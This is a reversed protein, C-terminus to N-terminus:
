PTGAGPTHGVTRELEARALLYALNAQLLEARAKYNEATAHRVDSILLIGQKQQNNALRETEERLKVVQAAVAVMSRTRELKNYSKEIAVAVEEKLHELNQEAEAFQTERERVQARRKGFDWLTYNLNIGVTGFNRVLFPVGDQYSHRAFATIDPIYETEAARVGARAKEIASNAALIQPNQEWAARVYEAKSLVLPDVVEEAELDLKTDLPLGLLDNLEATYDEIQLEATLASQQSQLLETRRQIEAVQLASGGRVNSENERLTESASLTEEDAAKKQLQAVLIGYYLTHVDFAIENEASKLEDRSAEVEALAIRNQAHIRLLQTLPQAIMTGSSYLTLKGQPLNTNQSPVPVGSVNGLSGEPITLTQLASIHLANSQNTIIPFYASRAAEKRYENEKVKLRAIRLSRNQQLALRVAEAVTLKRPEGASTLAACFLAAIALASLRRTNRIKVMKHSSERATANCDRPNVSNM